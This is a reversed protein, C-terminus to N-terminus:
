DRARANQNESPELRSLRVLAPMDIIRLDRGHTELIGRETLAHLTRSLTERTTDILLALEERRMRLPIVVPQRTGVSDAPVRELLFRAIRTRARQITRALMREESAISEGALRILLASTLAHDEHVLDLFAERPIACAITREIPVASVRYDRNTLVARYGLLSGPGRMGIVHESGGSMLKSLKVKGQRLCYVALAPNGQLYLHQGPEYAHPVRVEM